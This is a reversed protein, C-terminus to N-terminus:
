KGILRKFISTKKSHKKGSSLNQLERRADLIDKRYPNLEKSKEFSAGAKQYQGAKMYNYGMYFWADSNEAEIQVSKQFYKEAAYYNKRKMLVIGLYIKVLANDQSLREAEEFKEGAKIMKDKILFYIGQNFILNFVQHPPYYDINEEPHENQYERMAIVYSEHIELFNSRASEDNLFVIKFRAEGTKKFYRQRIEEVAANPNLGLSKLANILIKNHNM